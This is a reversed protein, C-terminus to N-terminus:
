RRHRRADAATDRNIDVLVQPKDVELDSTVDQLGPLKRMGSEVEPALRQLEALDTGQITYQYHSKASRGGIQINQVPQM